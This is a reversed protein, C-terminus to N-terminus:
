HAVPKAKAEEQIPIEVRRAASEPIPVTVELEGNTFKAAAEETKAGKPLAITRCFKGFARESHFYGEKKTEKEHRREGEVTLMGDLVSIKVDEPKLGPLDATLVLKGKEEKVEIAPQWDVVQKMETSYPGFSKEMQETFRRMMSFPNMPFLGGEAWPDWGMFRTFGEAEKKPQKVVNVESMKTEGESRTIQRALVKEFHLELM